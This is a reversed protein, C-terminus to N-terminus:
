VNYMIDKSGLRLQTLIRTCLYFYKKLFHFLIHEDAKTLIRCGINYLYQM